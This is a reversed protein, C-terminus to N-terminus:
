GVIFLMCFAIMIFLLLSLINTCLIQLLYNIYKTVYGQILVLMIYMNRYPWIHIIYFSIILRHWISILKSRIATLSLENDRCFLVFYFSTFLKLSIIYPIDARGSIGSLACSMDYIQGAGSWCLYTARKVFPKLILIWNKCFYMNIRRSFYYGMLDCNQVHWSLKACVVVASSYHSTCCQSM